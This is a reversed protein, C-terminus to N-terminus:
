SRKSYTRVLEENLERSPTITSLINEPYGEEIFRDILGNRLKKCKDWDNWFILQKTFQEVNAVLCDHLTNKKLAVHIPYFSKVHYNFATIDNRWNYSLTFLYVYYEIPLSGNDLDYFVKWIFSGGKRVKNSLPSIYIMILRSIEINIMDQEGLWALMIDDTITEEILIPCVSRNPNLVIYDLVVVGINNTISKIYNITNKSLCSNTNLTKNVLAEWYKFDNPLTKEFLRLADRFHNENLSLWLNNCLVKNSISALCMFLDWKNKIIYAIDEGSLINVSQIVISEGYSNIFSSNNTLKDLLNIYESKNENYLDTVRETYRFSDYDFSFLHKTTGMEYIFSSENCFALSTGKVMLKIKLLAGDNQKPFGDSVIQLYRRFIIVDDNNLPLNEIIEFVKIIAELNHLTLVDEAYISFLTPIEQKEQLISEAILSLWSNDLSLSFARDSTVRVSSSFQLTLPIGNFKRLQSCGSCLSINKMMLPPIHRILSFCLQQFFLTTRDVNLLIPNNTILHEYLGYIYDMSPKNTSDWYPTGLINNDELVLDKSYSEYVEQEPRKFYSLLLRVDFNNNLDHINFLFSHTWVCGPREMESAYWTKAIVYYNSDPLPYATIYSSDDGSPDKYESWDSLTMIMNMDKSSSLKKSYALLTHGQNYGHLLQHIIM